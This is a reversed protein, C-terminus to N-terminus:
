SAVKALIELVRLYRIAAHGHPRRHAAEWRWITSQDVQAGSALETLSLFAKERIHRAEGSAALLRVKALDIPNIQEM